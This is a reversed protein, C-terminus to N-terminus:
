AIHGGIAKILIGYDGARYVEIKNDKCKINAVKRDDDYIWLWHLCEYVKKYHKPIEINENVFYSRYLGDGNLELIKPEIQWDEDNKRDKLIKSCGRLLLSAIDSGGLYIVRDKYSSM